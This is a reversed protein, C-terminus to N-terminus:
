KIIEYFEEYPIQTLYVPMERFAQKFVETEHSKEHLEKSEWYTLMIYKTPTVEEHLTGPVGSGRASIGSIKLLKSGLFGPMRETEHCLEGVADEFKEEYGTRVSVFNVAVVMTKGEKEMTSVEEPSITRADIGHQALKEKALHARQGTNCYLMIENGSLFEIYFDMDHCPINIAGKVHEKVFEERTRTDILLKM